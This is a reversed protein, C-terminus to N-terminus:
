VSTNFKLSVITNLFNSLDIQLTLTSSLGNPALAVITVPLISVPPIITPQNLTL